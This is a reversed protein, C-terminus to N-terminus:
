HLPGGRGPKNKGTMFLDETEEEFEDEELEMDPDNEALWKDTMEDLTMGTLFGLYSPM